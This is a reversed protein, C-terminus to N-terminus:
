ERARIAIRLPSGDITRYARFAVEFGTLGHDITWADLAGEDVRRVEDYEGKRAM